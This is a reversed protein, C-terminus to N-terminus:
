RRPSRWRATTPPCPTAQRRQAWTLTRGRARAGGRRRRKQVRPRRRLRRQWQRRRPRGRHVRGFSYTAGGKNSRVGTVLSHGWGAAIHRVHLKHLSHVRAAVGVCPRPPLMVLTQGPGLTTVHSTENGKPATGSTGAGQAASESAAKAGDENACGDAAANTSATAAAAAASAAVDAAADAPKANLDPPPLHPVREPEGVVVGVLPADPPAGVFGLGLQGADNHGFTFVVGDHDLLLNHHAGCAIKAIAPEKKHEESFPLLVPQFNHHCHARRTKFVSSAAGGMSCKSSDKQVNGLYQSFFDSFFFSRLWSALALLIWTGVACGVM